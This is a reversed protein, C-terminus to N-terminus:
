IQRKNNKYATIRLLVHEGYVYADRRTNSYARIIM